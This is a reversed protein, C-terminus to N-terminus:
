TAFYNIINTRNKYILGCIIGTTVAYAHYAYRINFPRTESFCYYIFMPLDLIVFILSIFSLDYITQNSGIFTPNPYLILGLGVIMRIILSAGYFRYSNDIYDGIIIMVTSLIYTLPFFWLLADNLFIFFIICIINIGLNTYTDHLLSRVWYQYTQNKKALLIFCM